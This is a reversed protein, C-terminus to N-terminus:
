FFVLWRFQAVHIRDEERTSRTKLDGYTYNAMLRMNRMLYWSAGVTTNRASGGNVTEDNLDLVSFRVALEVAGFRSKPHIGQITASRRRYRRSEGTVVWSAQIYGGSFSPNRRGASRRLHSHMYESQITWPGRIAVFEAGVNFVDDVDALSGTSLLKPLLGAEPRTRLRWRRDDRIKRYEFAAGFHLVGRKSSALPAYVVRSVFGNHRTRRRDNSSEGLPEMTWAAAAVWRHRNKKEGIHGNAAVRVGTQFGPAIASSIARELFTSYNSTAVEELGFPAVFNGVRLSLSRSPSYGAALNRWGRRGEALEGDLVFSFGNESKGRLYLRARRVDFDNERFDTADDEAVHGDLHLRGGVRFTLEPYRTRLRLGRYRSVDLEYGEGELLTFRHNSGESRAPALSVMWLALAPVVLRLFARTM